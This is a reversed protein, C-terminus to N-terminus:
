ASVGSQWKPGWSSPVQPRSSPPRCSNQEADRFLMVTLAVTVWVAAWSLANLTSRSFHGIYLFSTPAYQFKVKRRFFIEEYIDSGPREAAYARAAEMPRWSDAAQSRRFFHEVQGVITEDRATGFAVRLTLPILVAHVFLV